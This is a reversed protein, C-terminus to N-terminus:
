CDGTWAVRTISAWQNPTMSIGTDIEGWYNHNIIPMRLGDITDLAGVQQGAADLFRWSNHWQDFHSTRTTSTTFVFRVKTFGTADPRSLYLNGFMSCDGVHMPAVVSFQTQPSDFYQDDAFVTGTAAYASPIGVATALATALSLAWITKWTTM